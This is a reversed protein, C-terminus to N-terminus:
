DYLPYKACLKGVQERIYGAQNDFDSAALYIL